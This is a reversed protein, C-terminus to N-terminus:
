GAPAWSRVQALRRELFRREIATSALSLAVEYSTVAEGARGARRWLDARASHFLHSSALAPEGALADLARLGAWPGAVMAMAVAANLLVVPSPHIAVLADYLLRIQAWDTAAASGAAQKAGQHRRLGLDVPQQRQHQQM